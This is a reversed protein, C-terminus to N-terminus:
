KKLLNYAMLYIIKKLVLSCITERIYIQSYIMFCSIVQVLSHSFHIESVVFFIIYYKGKKQVLFYISILSRTEIKNDVTLNHFVLIQQNEIFKGNTLAMNHLADM